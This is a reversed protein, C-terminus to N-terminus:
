KVKYKTSPGAGDKIWLGEKVLQGIPVAPQTIGAKDAVEKSKFEKGGFSKAAEILKDRKSTGGGESSKSNIKPIPEVATTLELIKDLKGLRKALADREQHIDTKIRRLLDIKGDVDLSDYKAGIEAISPQPTDLPEEVKPTEKNKM